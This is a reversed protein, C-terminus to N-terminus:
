RESDIVIVPNQRPPLFFHNDYVFAPEIQGNSYWDVIQGTGGTGAAPKGDYVAILQDARQVIYAGALAYQQNRAENDRRDQGVALERINGFKMPLEYYFEAKGILTKFEDQSAQSTFDQVYLDYPLPLPVQLSAGLIDMAMQAVLRDAGEALPSLITFQHNAYQEQLGLLCTKIQQRLNPDGLKDPNLRHGTV